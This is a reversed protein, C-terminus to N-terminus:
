PSLSKKQCYILMDLHICINCKCSYFIEPRGAPPFPAECFRGIRFVPRGAPVHAARYKKRMEFTSMVTHFVRHLIHLVGIFLANPQTVAM